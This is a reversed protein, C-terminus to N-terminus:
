RKGNKTRRKERKLCWGAGNGYNYKPLIGDIKANVDFKTSKVVKKANTAM